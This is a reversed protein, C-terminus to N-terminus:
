LLVIRRKAGLVMGEVPKGCDLSGYTNLHSDRGRCAGCDTRVDDHDEQCGCRPGRRRMDDPGFGSVVRLTGATRVDTARAYLREAQVVTSDSARRRFITFLLTDRSFQLKM